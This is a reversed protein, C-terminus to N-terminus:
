TSEVREAAEKVRSRARDQAERARSKVFDEANKIRQRALAEADKKQWKAMYEADQKQWRALDEAEKKQYRVHEEMAQKRWMAQQEEFDKQWKVTDEDIQKQWKTSEEEYQKQWKASEEEYKTHWEAADEAYRKDKNALDSTRKGEAARKAAEAKVRWYADQKKKQQIDESYEGKLEQWRIEGLPTSPNDRQYVQLSSQLMESHLESGLQPRDASEMYQELAFHKRALDRSQIIGTVKLVVGEHITEREEPHALYTQKQSQLWSQELRLELMAIALNAKRERDSAPLVKIQRHIHEEVMDNRRMLIDFLQAFSEGSENRFVDLYWRLEPDKDNSASNSTSPNEDKVLQQQQEQSPAYAPPQDSKLGQLSFRAMDAVISAQEPDATSTTSTTSSITM